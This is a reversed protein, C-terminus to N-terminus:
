DHRSRGGVRDAKAMLMATVVREWEDEDFEGDMIKEVGEWDINEEGLEEKLAALQNEMERRKAGKQKRAEEEKAAKEALKREARAERKLKRKDDERRVLSDIQRPHTLINSSGRVNTETVKM